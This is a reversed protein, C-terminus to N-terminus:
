EWPNLLDVGTPLFDKINRTVVTMGHIMATSAIFADRDSKKDPVHLKSCCRAVSLDINLIRKNFRPIITNEYWSRLKIEKKKNKREILLIGIELEMITIVSIFCTSFDIKKAWRIFNEDSKGKPVKRLESIINTDLLFM